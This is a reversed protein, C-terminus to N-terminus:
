PAGVDQSILIETEYNIIRVFAAGRTYDAPQAGSDSFLFSTFFSVTGRARRRRCLLSIFEPLTIKFEM